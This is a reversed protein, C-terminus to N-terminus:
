IPKTGSDGGPPRASPQAHYAKCRDWIYCFYIRPFERQLYKSVMEPLTTGRKHAEKELPDYLDDALHIVLRKM